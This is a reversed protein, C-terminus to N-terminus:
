TDSDFVSPNYIDSYDTDLTQGSRFPDIQNPGVESNNSSVSGGTEPDSDGYASIWREFAFTVVLRHMDRSGAQAMMTELSVPFADILRISYVGIDKGTLDQGRHKLQKIIVGSSMYTSPYYFSFGIPDCIIKMWNEFYKRIGFDQDMMFVLRIMGSYSVDTPRHFTPGMLHFPKMDWNMGPFDASECYRQMSEVPINSVEISQNSIGVAQPLTVKYKSQFAFDRKKIDTLFQQLASSNQQSRSQGPMPFNQQSAAPISEPAPMPYRAYFTSPASLVGLFPNIIDLGEFPNNLGPISNPLAFNFNATSPSGLLNTL